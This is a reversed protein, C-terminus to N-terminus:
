RRHLGQSRLFRARRPEPRLQAASEIGFFPNRRGGPHCIAIADMENAGIRRAKISQEGMATDFMWAGNRKVIPVPFPWDDKGISLIMRNADMSDRQLEHRSQAANAFEQRETQDQSPNGSTLVTHANAGFIAQLEATNGSAAAEILDQAAAEPTPFTKQTQAMALAGAAAILLATKM